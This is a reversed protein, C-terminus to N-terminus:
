NEVGLTRMLSHVTDDLKECGSFAAKGIKKLGGPFSVEKLKECDSFTNDEIITHHVRM